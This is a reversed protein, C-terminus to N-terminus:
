RSVGRCPQLSPRSRWEARILNARCAYHWAIKSVGVDPYQLPVAAVSEPTRWAFPFYQNASGPGVCAGVSHGHAGTIRFLLSPSLCKDSM